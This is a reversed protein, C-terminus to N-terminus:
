ILVVAVFIFYYTLLVLGILRHIDTSFRQHHRLILNDELTDACYLLEMTRRNFPTYSYWSVALWTKFLPLKYNM